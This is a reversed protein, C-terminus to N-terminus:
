RFPRAWVMEGPALARTTPAAFPLSDQGNEHPHVYHEWKTWAGGKFDNRVLEWLFDQIPVAEKHEAAPVGPRRIALLTSFVSNLGQVDIRASDTEAPSPPMRWGHDGQVIVIAGDRGVTRDLADLVGAVARHVCRSQAVYLTLVARWSSDTFPNPLDYGVRRSPDAYARCDDDVELPRHPSLVHVFFAKGAVPGDALADRVREFQALGGGVTSRRWATDDPPRKFKEYAHSTLNLFYRTALKARGTWAGGLYGINAISNAPATQCSALARTGARCFDLHTSQYVDISYGMESLREFYPNTRLRFREPFKDNPPLPEVDAPRGLSFEEPVSTRTRGWRSYAGEYVEFGRELYFDAMFQAAVSDGAARLGGIGWQEDLVIHVLVPLSGRPRATDAGPASVLRDSPRPLSALNFAGLMLCVLISRRDRLLFALAFCVAVVALTPFRNELNLQLDVLCVPARWLV